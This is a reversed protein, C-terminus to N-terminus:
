PQVLTARVTSWVWELILLFVGAHLNAGTSLVQRRARVVSIGGANDTESEKGVRSEIFRCRLFPVRHTVVLVGRVVIGLVEHLGIAHAHRAAEAM